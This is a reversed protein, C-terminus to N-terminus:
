VCVLYFVLMPQGSGLSCPWHLNMGRVLMGAASASGRPSTFLVRMFSLWAAIHAPGANAVGMWILRGAATRRSLPVRRGSAPPPYMIPLRRERGPDPGHRADDYMDFGQM